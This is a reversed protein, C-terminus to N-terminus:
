GSSTITPKHCPCPVWVTHTRTGSPARSYPILRHYCPQDDFKPYIGSTNYHSHCIASPKAEQLKAVGVVISTTNIGFKVGLLAIVYVFVIGASNILSPMSYKSHAKHVKHSLSEYCAGVFVKVDSMEGYIQKKLLAKLAICRKYNSKGHSSWMCM